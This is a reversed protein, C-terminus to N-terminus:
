LLLVRLAPEPLVGSPLGQSEPYVQCSLNTSKLPVLLQVLFYHVPSIFYNRDIFLIWIKIPRKLILFIHLSLFCGHMINDALPGPHLM